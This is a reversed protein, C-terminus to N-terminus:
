NRGKKGSLKLHYQWTFYNAIGVIVTMTVFFISLDSM